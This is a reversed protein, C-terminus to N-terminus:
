GRERWSARGIEESLERGAEKQKLRSYPINILRNNEVDARAWIVHAHTRGNKTHLTMVRPQGDLGLKKELHDACHRWLEPTMRSFDPHPNIQAHYLGLEGLTSKSWLDFDMVAMRVNSEPDHGYDAWQELVQVRENNGVSTIYLGAQVGDSRCNGNIIM